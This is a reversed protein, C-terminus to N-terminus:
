EGGGEGGWFFVIETTFGSSRLFRFAKMSMSYVRSKAILLDPFICNYRM